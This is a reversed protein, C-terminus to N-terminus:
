CTPLIGVPEFVDHGGLHAVRPGPGLHMRDQGLVEDHGRPMAVYVRMMIQQILELPQREHEIGRPM